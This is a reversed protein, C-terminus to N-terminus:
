FDEPKDPIDPSIYDLHQAGREAEARLFVYM